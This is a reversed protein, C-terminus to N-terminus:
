KTAKKKASKKKRRASHKKEAEFLAAVAARDPLAEVIKEGFSTVQKLGRKHANTLYNTQQANSMSDSANSLKKQAAETNLATIDATKFHPTDRYNTLYYGLCTVREVDTTPRKQDLFQKPSIDGPLQHQNGSTALPSAGAVNRSQHAPATASLGLRAAATQVVFQQADADLNELATLVAGLADIQEQFQSTTPV